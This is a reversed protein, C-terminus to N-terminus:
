SIDYQAYSATSFYKHFCYCTKLAPKTIETLSYLLKPSLSSKSIYLTASHCKTCCVVKHLSPQSVNLMM